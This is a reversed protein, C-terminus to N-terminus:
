VKFVSFSNPGFTRQPTSTCCNVCSALVLAGLVTRMLNPYRQPWRRLERRKCDIAPSVEFLREFRGRWRGRHQQVPSAIIAWYVTLTQITAAEDEGMLRVMDRSM